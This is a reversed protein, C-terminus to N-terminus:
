KNWDAMDSVRLEFSDTTASKATKLEDEVQQFAAALKFSLRALDEPNPPTPAAKDGVPAVRWALEVYIQAALNRVQHAALERPSTPASM